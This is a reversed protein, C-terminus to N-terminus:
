RDCQETCAICLAAAPDLELRRPDIAEDCDACYSYSGHDCRQVAAEIRRLEQEARPRPAHSSRPVLRFGRKTARVDALMGLTTRLRGAEAM